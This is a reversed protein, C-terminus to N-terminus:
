RFYLRYVNEPLEAIYLSNIVVVVAVLLVVVVVVVV